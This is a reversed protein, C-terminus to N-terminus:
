KFHLCSDITFLTKKKRQTIRKLKQEYRSIICHKLDYFLKLNMRLTFNSRDM